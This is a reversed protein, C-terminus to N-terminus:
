AATTPVGGRQLLLMSIIEGANAAAELAVGIVNSGIVPDSAAGADSTNVTTAAATAAQADASSKVNAGAAIAADAVVKTIGHVRVCAPEGAPVNDQLVGVAAEGLGALAAKGNADVKVLHFQKGTFDAAAILSIDTGHGQLAM